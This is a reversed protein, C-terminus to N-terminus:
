DVKYIFVKVSDGVYDSFKLLTDLYWDWDGAAIGCGVRYPFAVSELDEIKAIELLAKFFYTKRKNANDNDTNPLFSGPYYQGMLNIVYRQDDGNGRVVITGPKDEEIRNKYTDAYPFKNFLHRALGAAGGESVCNTQHVIYKAESELLDGRVIKLM